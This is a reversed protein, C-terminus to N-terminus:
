YSRANVFTCWKCDSDPGKCTPKGDALANNHALLDRFQVEEESQGLPPGTGGYNSPINELSIREQLQEQVEEKTRLIYIKELTAEDVLPKVIKWILAFWSPVNIVSYVYTNM